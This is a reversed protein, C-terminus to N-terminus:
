KLNFELKLEQIRPTFFCVFFCVFLVGFCLGFNFLCVFCFDLLLFGAKFRDGETMIRFQGRFGNDAVDQKWAEQEQRVM